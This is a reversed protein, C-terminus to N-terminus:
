PQLTPTSVPTPTPQRRGNKGSDFDFSLRYFKRSESESVSDYVNDQWNVIIKASHHYTRWFVSSYLYSLFFPAYCFTHFTPTMDLNREYWQFQTQCLTDAFSILGSTWKKKSSIWLRDHQDSKLIPHRKGPRINSNKTKKGPRLPRPNQTPNPIYIRLESDSDSSGRFILEAARTTGSYKTGSNHM